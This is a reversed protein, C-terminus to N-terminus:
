VTYLTKLCKNLDMENQFIVFHLLLFDYTKLFRGKKTRNYRKHKSGPPRGRGKMPREQSTAYQITPKPKPKPSGRRVTLMSISTVIYWLSVMCSGLGMRVNIIIQSIMEPILVLV